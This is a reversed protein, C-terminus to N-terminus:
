YAAPPSLPRQSFLQIANLNDFALIGEGGTILGIKGSGVAKEWTSFVLLGDFSIEVYDKSLITNHQARLRHWASKERKVGQRGLVTAQGDLVRIVELTDTALDVMAAYFNRADRAGFVLGGAGEKGEGALRFRVTLDPYEYTTGEMLLVQLCGAVGTPCPTTQVLRNPSSPAQPDAEITWHGVAGEGITGISFGSPTEGPRDGDFNWFHRLDNTTHERKVPPEAGASMLGVLVVAGIFQSVIM